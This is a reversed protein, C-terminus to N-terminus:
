EDWEEDKEEGEEQQAAHPSPVKEEEDDDDDDDDDQGRSSSSPAGAVAYGDPDNLIDPDVGNTRMLSVIQPLPVKYSFMKFYKVYM